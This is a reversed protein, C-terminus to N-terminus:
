VPFSTLSQLEVSLFYLGSLGTPLLRAVNDSLGYKFSFGHIRPNAPKLSDIQCFYRVTQM